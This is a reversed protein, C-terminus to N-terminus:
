GANDSEDYVQVLVAMLPGGDGFSLNLKLAMTNKKKQKEVDHAVM